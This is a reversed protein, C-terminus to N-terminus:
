VMIGTMQQHNLTGILNQALKSKIVCPAKCGDWVMGQGREFDGKGDPLSGLWGFPM